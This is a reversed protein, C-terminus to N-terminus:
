KACISIPRMFRELNAHRGPSAVPARPLDGSSSTRRLTGHASSVESVDGGTNSCRVPRTSPAIWDDEVRKPAKQKGRVVCGQCADVVRLQPGQGAFLPLISHCGAFSVVTTRGISVRVFLEVLNGCHEFIDYPLATISIPLVARRLETCAGFCGHVISTVTPPVEIELLRLCGAESFPPSACFRCNHGDSLWDWWRKWWAFEPDLAPRNQLRASRSHKLIFEHISVYGAPVRWHGIIWESFRNCGGDLRYASCSPQVPLTPQGSRSPRSLQCSPHSPRHPRPSHRFRSWSAVFL